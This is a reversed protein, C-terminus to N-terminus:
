EDGSILEILEECEHMKEIADDLVVRAEGIYVCSDESDLTRQLILLMSNVSIFKRRLAESAAYSEVIM